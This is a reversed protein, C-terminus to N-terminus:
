KAATPTRRTWPWPGGDVAALLDPATARTPTTLDFVYVRATGVRVEAVPAWDLRGRVSGAFRSRFPATEWDDLVLWTTRGEAALRDVTADLAIPDVYDWRVVTRHSADALAGSHQVAMVAARDPTYDAIWRAATTYRHEGRWLDFTGARAATAIGAGGVLVAASTVLLVAADAIWRTLASVAGVVAVAALVPWAPLYFRLYWWEEFVFYPLYSVAVGAVVAITLWWARASVLRWAAPLVLMAGILWQGQSEILWRWVRVANPVVSAALYLDDTQGYGSAFPSGRLAQNIAAITVAVAAVPVGLATATRLRAHRDATGVAVVWVLATLPVLNPRVALALASWVGAVALRPRDPVTLALISVTWLAAAPLDSMTQMGAFLVPPSTAVLVSAALALAPSALRRTWLFTSWVLMGMALPTWLYRGAEGAVLAGAAMLWPLGPSYSPALRDVTVSPTWGLPAVRWGRDPWPTEDIVPAVVSIAGAQWVRSQSIYGSSDAGGAVHTGFVVSVAAASVAVLGAAWAASRELRQRARTMARRRAEPALGWWALALCTLGFLAPRVMSRSSVRVAGVVVTGGGTLWVIAAWALLATGIPALARRIPALAPV